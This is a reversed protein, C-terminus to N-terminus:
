RAGTTATTLLTINVTSVGTRADRADLVAQFGALIGGETSTDAVSVEDVVLEGGEPFGNAMVAVLPAWLNINNFSVDLLQLSLLGTLPELDTIDNNSIDLIRLRPCPEDDACGGDAAEPDPPWLGELPAISRINNNSLNLTSLNLFYQLGELSEVGAGSLQLETVDLVDTETICGLPKMLELRVALRLAPDPILVGDGLCFCGSLLFAFCVALAKAGVTKIRNMKMASGELKRQAASTFGYRCVLTFDEKMPRLAKGRMREAKM